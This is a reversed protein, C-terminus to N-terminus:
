PLAVRVEAEQRLRVGADTCGAIAAQVLGAALEEDADVRVVDGAGFHDLTEDAAHLVPGIAAGQRTIEQGEGVLGPPRAPQEREGIPGSPSRVDDRRQVIDVAIRIRNKPGPIESFNASELRIAACGELVPLREDLEDVAALADIDQGLVQKVVANTALAEGLDGVVIAITLANQTLKAVDRRQGEGLLEGQPLPQGARMTM